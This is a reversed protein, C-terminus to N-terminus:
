SVYTQHVNNVCFGAELGFMKERLEVIFTVRSTALLCLRQSHLPKPGGELPGSCGCTGFHLGLAAEFHGFLHARGGEVLNLELRLSQLLLRRSSLGGVGAGEEPDGLERALTGFAHVGSSAVLRASVELHRRPPELPPPRGARFRQYANVTQAHLFIRFQMRRLFRRRIRRIM